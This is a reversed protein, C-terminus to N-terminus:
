PAASADAGQLQRAGVFRRGGGLARRGARPAPHRRRARHREARRAPLRRIRGTRRVSHARRGDDGHRRGAGRGRSDFRVVGNIADLANPMSFHRIRGNTITATGSFEPTYLPGNVAARLEARGSGRMENPFFGQLIGLNADGAAQLAIRQDRLGITGGIRLQTDEGVLQLEQVRIVNQDLALKIPGGNRLEYDFLRMEVSDVTGDVLLRNVDALEGVMRMSGSAVATTYPSLSPMFLRVYPDLSSEHFRFSLEADAQPTLAIRGTGTIALRSSTVEMEGSVENGRLALTGSVQGVPESSVTLDAIRFKVDYRPTEFTGSGGASFDVAGTPRLQPYDFAAIDAVPLRRGVADFSYTGDWGVFAAGTVTGSTKTLSVGDLRVGSGDFRLAATGKEFPEAYATGREITM